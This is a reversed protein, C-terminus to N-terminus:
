FSFGFRVRFGMNKEVTDITCSIGFIFKDRRIKGLTWGLPLWFQHM